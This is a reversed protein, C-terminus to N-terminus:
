VMEGFVAPAGPRLALIAGLARARIVACKLPCKLDNTGSETTTRTVVATRLRRGEVTSPKLNWSRLTYYFYQLLANKPLM